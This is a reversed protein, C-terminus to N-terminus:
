LDKWLVVCNKGQDKAAYLADDAATLLAQITDGHTPFNAVGISLTTQIEMQNFTVSTEQYSQRWMKARRLAAEPSTKPLVILFEDGAYRCVIDSARTRENIHQALMQLVMDGAQHGFHDNVKKFNDIDIMVLSIPYEERKARALERELTASLYRRNFVGTLPDRIAQESLITHLAQIEEMQKQMKEYAIRLDEDAQKRATIDELIAASRYIEGTENKVPFIRGWVWRISGDPRVIRHQDSRRVDGKRLWKKDEPHILNYFADPNEYFTQRSIGSIEEFAPNVYLIKRTKVDRIWLGVRLASTIQLLYEESEHLTLQGQNDGTPERIYICITWEGQGTQQIESIVEGQFLTGNKRIFTMKGSAAPSHQREDLPFVLVTDSPDIFEAASHGLLEQDACQLIRCAAPNAALIKGDLSALLAADPSLDVPPLPTNKSLPIPDTM